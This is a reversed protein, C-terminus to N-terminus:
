FDDPADQEEITHNYRLELVICPLFCIFLRKYQVIKVHTYEENWIKQIKRGGFFAGMWLDEKKFYLKLKM